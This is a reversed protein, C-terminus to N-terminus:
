SQVQSHLMQIKQQHYIHNCSIRLPYLHPVYKLLALLMIDKNENIRKIAKTISHELYREGYKGKELCKESIKYNPNSFISKIIQDSVGRQVLSCIVAQDAESRSEYKNNADGHIILNIISQPLDLRHLNIASNKKGENVSHVRNRYDQLENHFIQEFEGLTYTLATEMRIFKVERPCDKVKVNLTNPVRLVRTIDYTCDGGVANSLLRLIEEIYPVDIDTLLPNLLWFCQFGHGTEIIISPQGPFDRLGKLAAKRDPYHSMKKHGEEGYDIDVYFATIGKITDKTAKRNSSRPCAGFYINGDLENVKKELRDLDDFFYRKLDQGNICRIEAFGGFGKLYLAFLANFFEKRKSM